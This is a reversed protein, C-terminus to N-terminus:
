TASAAAVSGTTDRTDSPANASVGAAGVPRADTVARARTLDQRQRRRGDRRRRTGQILVARAPRERAPENLSADRQEHDASQEAVLRRPHDIEDVILEVVGRECRRDRTAAAYVGGFVGSWGLAAVLSHSYPMYELVLPSAATAGPLISTREVGV